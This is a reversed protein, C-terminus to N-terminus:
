HETYYLGFTIFVTDKVTIAGFMKKPQELEFDSLRIHMDGRLFVKHANVQKIKYESTVPNTIDALTLTMQTHYDTQNKRNTLHIKNLNFRVKINKYKSAQMMELFDRKMAYNAANFEKVPILFTILNNGQNPNNTTAIGKGSNYTLVFDKGVNTTGKIEIHKLHFAGSDKRINKAFPEIHILILIIFLGYRM